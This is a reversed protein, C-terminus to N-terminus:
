DDAGIDEADADIRDAFAPRGDDTQNGFLRVAVERRLAAVDDDRLDKTLARYGHSEAAFPRDLVARLRPNDAHRLLLQAPAPLQAAALDRLLAPRHKGAEDSWQRLLAAKDADATAAYTRVWEAAEEASMFSYAEVGMAKQLAIVDARTRGLTSHEAAYAFPDDALRERRDDAAKDAGFQIFERRRLGDPTRAEADVQM